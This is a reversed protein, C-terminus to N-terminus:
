RGGSHQQKGKGHQPLLFHEEIIRVLAQSRQHVDSWVSALAITLKKLLQPVKIERKETLSDQACQDSNTQRM